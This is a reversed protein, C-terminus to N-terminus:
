MLLQLKVVHSYNLSLNNQGDNTDHNRNATLYPLSCFRDTNM